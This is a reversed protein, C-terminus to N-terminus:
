GPPPRCVAPRTTAALMDYTIGRADSFAELAAVDDYSIAYLKIGAEAFLPLANQLEVLQTM